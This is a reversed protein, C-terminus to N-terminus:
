FQLFSIRCHHGNWPFDTVQEGEKSATKLGFCGVVADRLAMLKDVWAPGNCFIKTVLQDVSEGRGVPVSYSDMYDIRGFSDAIISESPVKLTKSVM